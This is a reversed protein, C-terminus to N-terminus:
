ELMIVAMEKNITEEDISTRGDMKKSMKYLSYLFFPSNYMSIIYTVSTHIRKRLSTYTRRIKDM